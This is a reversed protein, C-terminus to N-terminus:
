FEIGLKLITRNLTLDARQIVPNNWQDPFSTEAVAPQIYQHLSLTFKIKFRTAMQVGIGPEFNFGGEQDSLWNQNKFFGYGAFGSAYPRFRKDTFTYRAYAGVNFFNYDVWLGKEEAYNTDYGAQIGASLHKTVHLGAHINIHPRGENSLTPGLQLGAFLGSSNHYPEKSYSNNNVKKHRQISAITSKNLELSDLTENYFVLKNTDEFLIKGVFTSGDELKIIDVREEETTQAHGNTIGWLLIVISFLLRIM